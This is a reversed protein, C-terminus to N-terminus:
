RTPHEGEPARGTSSTRGPPSAPLARRRSRNRRSLSIAALVAALVSGILVATKGHEAAESASGFALDSVLLAVTFGVGALLAVSFVESWRLEPALEARTFRATLYAGAFVGIAKGAVLGIVVGLALPERVMAALSDGSIVVGAALLAFLPVAIAASVPRWVHEWHEAPATSEPDAKNVSRTVLGVAVGAITAHVGSQLTCIWAIVGLPLFIWWHDVSRRQLLWWIGVCVAAAALWLLNVSDTFVTAIVLIAGLDDVIALTLLFARLSAPLQRGVIALIALAFAIDTAMPVAWGEPRGHAAPLNIVLYVAAPIVMGAVAAVIPVLADAPRSLSGVTLERKLELGAVFFFITLLGDAAWHELSLPGLHAHRFVEYSHQGANAWILAAVTAALMLAGGVTEDRLIEAVTRRDRPDQGGFLFRRRPPAAHVSESETM